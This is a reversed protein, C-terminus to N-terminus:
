GTLPHPTHAVMGAGRRARVGGRGPPHARVRRARPGAGRGSELAWARRDCRSGARGGGAGRADRWTRAGGGEAGAGSGRPDRARRVRGVPRRRWRCAGPGRAGTCALGVPRGVVRGALGARIRQATRRARIYSTRGSSHGAQPPWIDMRANGEALEAERRNRVSGGATEAM